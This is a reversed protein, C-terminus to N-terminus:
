DLTNLYETRSIGPFLCPAYMLSLISQDLQSIEKLYNEDDDANNEHEEDSKFNGICSDFEPAWKNLHEFGLVHMFEHRLVGKKSYWPLAQYSPYITIKAWVINFTKGFSTTTVGPIKHDPEIDDFHWIVNENSEVKLLPIPLYNCFEDIISQIDILDHYTPSGTIKIRLTDKWKITYDEEKVKGNFGVLSFFLSAQDSKGECCKEIKEMRSECSSLIAILLILTLLLNQKIKKIM